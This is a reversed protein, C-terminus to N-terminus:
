NDCRTEPEPCFTSKQVPAARGGWHSLCPFLSLFNILSAKHNNQMREQSNLPLILRIKLLASIIRHSENKLLWLFLLYLAESIESELSALKCKTRWSQSSSSSVVKFYYWLIKLRCQSVCFLRQYKSIEEFASWSHLSIDVIDLLRDNKQPFVKICICLSSKQYMWVVNVWDIIMLLTSIINLFHRWRSIFVDSLSHRSLQPQCPASSTIHLPVSTNRHTANTIRTLSKSNRGTHLFTGRKREKHRKLCTVVIHVTHKTDFHTKRKKRKPAISPWLPLLFRVRHQPSTTDM